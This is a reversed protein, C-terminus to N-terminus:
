RFVRLPALLREVTTSMPVASATGMAVTGRHRYLDGVMLMVASKITDPADEYGARYRIRIAERRTSCGEWPWSSGAAVVDRGILDLDALDVVQETGSADLYYAGALEIVPPYLLTIAQGCWADLRAELVQDGIARGLWGDPGDIHGSAAAIMAEVDLREDEGGGLRLRAVVEEYTVIPEPRAVVLVRM